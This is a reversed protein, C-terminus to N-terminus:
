RKDNERVMESSAELDPKCYCFALWLFIFWSFIAPIWYIWIGGLPTFRLEIISTGAPIRLGKFAINTRYLPTPKGNLYAKWASHYASTYVLFKEESLRTSLLLSNVDFHLIKIQPDAEKIIEAPSESAAEQQTSADQPLDCILAPELSHQLRRAVIETRQDQPLSEINQTKRYLILKNRIYQNLTSEGATLYLLYQWYSVTDPLINLHGNSDKLDMSPVLEPYRESSRCTQGEYQLPRTFSFVPVAHTDPYRCQNKAPLNNRYRSFVEIPELLLLIAIGALFLRKGNAKASMAPIFLLTGTALTVYTSTLINGDSRLKFFLLVPISFLLLKKFWSLPPCNKEHWTRLQFVSFLVLMPLLFASFIFLNRFYAFFPIHKFLFPHVPTANGLSILFLTTCSFLLVLSHRSVPTFLSLAILLYTLFPLYFMDDSYFDQEALNSFPRNINFREALSAPITADVLDLRSGQFCKDVSQICSIQHRAPSVIEPTRDRLWYFVLPQLGLILAVLCILSTRRHNRIFTIGQRLLLLLTQHNLLAFCGVLILLLTLFYFPYYSGAMTILAFTLGLVYKREPSEGFRLLFFFFWVTPCFLLIALFQNFVMAGLGSFLLLTYALFAFLENKLLQRALLYFGLMGVFFYVIIFALFAHYYTIGCSVLLAPLIILPNFLSDSVLSIFPRGQFVFPDWLPFVGNLLNNLFFKVSFYEFMSDVSVPITGNVFDKFLYLWILFPPLLRLAPMGCLWRKSSAFLRTQKCRSLAYVLDSAM